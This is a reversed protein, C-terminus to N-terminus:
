FALGRLEKSRSRSALIRTRDRMEVELRSGDYPILAAVMDLNVIHSRHIRLFRAPDLRRELAGLPLNVLYRRGGAHIAVYDAQAEVREIEGTPIPIIRGRDRVFIRTLPSEDALAQRARDLLRPGSGAELVRRVRELTAHFRAGGFPKVLYDLAGLEFAAVAYRDYATTFVVVPEHRIRNLVEIGTIEPLEIDLFVLDPELRDISRVASAGDSAEGVCDIWDVEAVLERMQELALPEDEVIVASAKM